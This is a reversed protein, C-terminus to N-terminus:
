RGRSEPMTGVNESTMEMPNPMVMIWKCRGGGCNLAGKDHKGDGDIAAAGPVNGLVL